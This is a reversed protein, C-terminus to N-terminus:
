FVGERLATKRPLYLSIKDAPTSSLDADGFTVDGAVRALWSGFDALLGGSAQNAVNGAGAVASGITGSDNSYEGYPTGENFKDLSKDAADGLRKIVVYAVVAAVLAGVAITVPRSNLLASVNM